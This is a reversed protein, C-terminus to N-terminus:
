IPNAKPDNSHFSLSNIWPMVVNTMYRYRCPYWQQMAGPNFIFLTWTEAFDEQLLKHGYRTPPMEPVVNSTANQAARESPWMASADSDAIVWTGLASNWTWNAISRYESTYSFGFTTNTALGKLYDFTHGAEHVGVYALNHYDEATIVHSSTTAPDTTGAEVVSWIEFDPWLNSDHYFSKTIRFQNGQFIMPAHSSLNFDLGNPEMNVYRFNNGLAGYATGGISTVPNIQDFTMYMCAHKNYTIFDTIKNMIFDGSTSRDLIEALHRRGPPVSAADPALMNTMLKWHYTIFINFRESMNLHSLNADCYDNFSEWTALAGVTVDYYISKYFMYQKKYFEPINNYFSTVDASRAENSLNSNSLDVGADEWIKIGNAIGYFYRTLAEIDLDENDKWYTVANAVDTPNSPDLPVGGISLRTVYLDRSRENTWYDSDDFTYTAGSKFIDLLHNNEGSPVPDDVVEEYAVTVTKDDGTAITVTLNAAPTTVDWDTGGSTTSPVITYTGVDFTNSTGYTYTDSDIQYTSPAGSPSKNVTLTGTETGASVEEYNVTVTKDDGVAITVTLNAAPTTVDWDTGGSTTSPVITYTGVDFAYSIGYTYTDSDIQYTSPAGSPSKNVTLTGGTIESYEIAVTKDVDEEIDISLESVDSTVSWTTGGESTTPSITYAGVDFEYTEGYNYTNANIQYTSPAESPTKSVTLTGTPPPPPIIIEDYVMEITIHDGAVISVTQNTPKTWGAVDGPIVDYSGPVLEANEGYFRTDGDVQWTGTPMGFPSSNVTLIGTTPGVETYVMTESTHVGAIITVPKEAPTNWGTISNPIIQYTGPLLTATSGYHYTDGNIEWTGAPVHSPSTNVTLAGTTPESPPLPGTPVGTDPDEGGPLFITPRFSPPWNTPCVPATNYCRPGSLWWLTFDDLGYAVITKVSTTWDTTNVCYKKLPPELQLGPYMYGYAHAFSGDSMDSTRWGTDYLLLDHPDTENTINEGTIFPHVGEYICLRDPRYSCEFVFEIFQVDQGIYFTLVTTELTGEYEINDCYIDVVPIETYTLEVVTRDTSINPDLSAPQAPPAHWDVVDTAQVQYFNPNLEIIDGSELLATEGNVYWRAWPRVEVPWIIAQLELKRPECMVTIVREGGPMGHFVSTEINAPTLWNEMDHFRITYNGPDLATSSENHEYIGAHGMIDWRAQAQAGTPNFLVRITLGDPYYTVTLKRTDFLLGPGLNVMHDDPTVWNPVDTFQVNFNGAYLEKTELSFHHGTHNEVSWMAAAVVEPPLIEVELYYPVATYTEVLDYTDDPMGDTITIVKDAPKTWGAVDNFTVNINGHPVNFATSGSFYVGFLSDFSCWAEGQIAPPNLTVNIKYMKVTYGVEVVVVTDTMGYTLEVEVSDPSSWGTVTSFDLVYTGVPLDEVIEGHVHDSSVTRIEWRAESTVEHPHILVQIGFTQRTYWLEVEKKDDPMGSMIQVDMPDPTIWGEDIADLGSVQYSSAPLFVSEGSDFSGPTGSRVWKVHPISAVEPPMIHVILEYLVPTPEPLTESPTPFSGSPTPFSGSPTPLTGSPTPEPDTPLPITELGPGSPEPGSPEPGFESVCTIRYNWVTSAAGSPGGGTICIEVTASGPYYFTVEGEHQVYGTNIVESNNVYIVLKDHYWSMDYSVIVDGSWAGLNHTNCETAGVAIESGTITSGCAPPQPPPICPGHTKVTNCTADQTWHIGGQNACQNYTLNSICTYDPMCCAGIPQAPPPGCPGVRKSIPGPTIGLNEPGCMPTQEPTCWPPPNSPDAGVAWPIEPTPITCNAGCSPTPIPELPQPGGGPPMVTAWWTWEPDPPPISCTWNPTLTPTPEPMEIPEDAYDVYKCLCRPVWEDKILFEFDEIECNYRIMGELPHQEISQLPVWVEDIGYEFDMLVENFRIMGNISGRPYGFGTRFITDDYIVTNKSINIAM